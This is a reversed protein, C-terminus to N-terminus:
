LLQSTRRIPTSDAFITGIDEQNFGILQLLNSQFIQFGGDIFDNLRNYTETSELKNQHTLQNRADKVDTMWEDRINESDFHDKLPESLCMLREKLTMESPKKGSARKNYAEVGKHYTELSQALNLFKQTLYQQKQATLYLDLAPMIDECVEMWKNVIREADSQIKEFKFLMGRNIKPEDQLYLYRSDYIDILPPRGTYAQHNNLSASTSDLPIMENIAFCLFARIKKAVSIFEDLERANQSFLRFYATEGMRNEISAYSYPFTISLQIDNNLKLPDIAPVQYSMTTSKEARDRMRFNSRGSWDEIGEVSFIFNNFRPIEGEGYEVRIFTREVLFSLKRLNYTPGAMQALHGNFYCDDLTVPGDNEIYGVIREIYGGVQEASQTDKRLANFLPGMGKNDFGGIVELEINGGNSISLIGPLVGGPAAPLWFCGLKKFEERIRM